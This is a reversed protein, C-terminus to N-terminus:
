ESRVARDAGPEETRPAAGGSAGLPRMVIQIEEIARGGARLNLAEVLSTRQMGLEYLLAPLDTAVVLVSGRIGLAKAHAARAAGVVEAWASLVATQRARRPGMLSLLADGLLEKLAYM